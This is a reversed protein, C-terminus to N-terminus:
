GLNWLLPLDFLCFFDIYGVPVVREWEHSIKEESYVFHIVKDKKEYKTMNGNEDYTYKEVDKKVKEEVTGDSYTTITIRDVSLIMDKDGYTREDYYDYEFKNGQEDMEGGGGKQVTLKRTAPDYEGLTYEDLTPVGNKDYQIEFTETPKDENYVLVIVGKDDYDFLPLELEDNLLSLTRSAPDFSYSYVGDEHTFTCGNTKWTVSYSESEGDDVVTVAVLRNFSTGQEGIGGIGGIAGQLKDCGTTMLLTVVLLVLMALIKKKM